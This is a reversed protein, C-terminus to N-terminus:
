RWHGPVWRWRGNYQRDWHGPVWAAGPRQARAWHGPVWVWRARWAWHGSVWVHHPSPRREVVVVEQQPPPPEAAAEYEGPQEEAVVPESAPGPNAPPAGDYVRVRCGGLVGMAAISGLVLLLKRM